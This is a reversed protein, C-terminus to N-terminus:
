PGLYATTTCTDTFTANTTFKAPMSTDITDVHEFLRLGCSRSVQTGMTGMSPHYALWLDAGATLVVPTDLAAHNWGPVVNTMKTKAILTDPADAVVSNTYVGLELDVPGSADLLADVYFWGCRAVADAPVKFGVADISKDPTGDSTKGLLTDSGFLATPTACPPPSAEAEGDESGADTVDSAAEFVDPVDVDIVDRPADETSADAPAAGGTIGDLDVFLRCGAISIALLAVLRSASRRV